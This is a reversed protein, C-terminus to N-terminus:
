MQRLNPWVLAKIKNKMTELLPWEVQQERERKEDDVDWLRIYIRKKEKDKTRTKTDRGGM